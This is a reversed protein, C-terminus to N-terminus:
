FFMRQSVNSLVKLVRAGVWMEANYLATGYTGMAEIKELLGARASLSNPFQTAIDEHARLISRAWKAKM